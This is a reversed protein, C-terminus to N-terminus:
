FCVNNITIIFIIIKKTTTTAGQPHIAKCALYIKLNYSM